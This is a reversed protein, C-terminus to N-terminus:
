GIEEQENEVVKVMKKIFSTFREAYKPPPIASITPGFICQKIM